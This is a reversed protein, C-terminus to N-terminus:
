GYESLSQRQCAVLCLPNSLFHTSADSQRRAEQAIPDRFCLAGSLPLNGWGPAQIIMKLFPSYDSKVWCDEDHQPYQM